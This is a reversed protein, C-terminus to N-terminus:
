RRHGGARTERVDKGEAAAQVLAAAQLDAAAVRDLQRALEARGGVHDGLVVQARARAGEHLGARLRAVLVEVHHEGGLREGAGGHERQERLLAQPAVHGGAALQVERQVRAERGLPDHQVAVRLGLRLQPHREIRADPQDHDVVEVLDITELPQRSSAGAAAHQDAHRRVHAPLRVLLDGGALGVRLEAERHVLDRRRDLPDAADVPQRQLAQVRM